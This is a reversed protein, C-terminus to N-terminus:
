STLGPQYTNQKKRGFTDWHVCVDIFFFPPWFLTEITWEVQWIELTIKIDTRVGECDKAKAPEGMFFSYLWATALLIERFHCVLLFQMADGTLLHFRQGVLPLIRSRCFLSHTNARILRQIGQSTIPDVPLIIPIGSVPGRCYCLSSLGVPQTQLANTFSTWAVYSVECWIKLM